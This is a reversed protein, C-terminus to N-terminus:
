ISDKLTMLENIDLIRDIDLLLIVKGKVKGIGTLFGTDTFEKCEQPMEIDNGQITVVESVTDVILGIQRKIERLNIEVVVICTRHTYEKEELGFRVRLDMVPIIKGRLNIVGKIFRPTKPIGTIEMLSIIEKVKLIHIGYEERDLLFTLYKGGQVEM